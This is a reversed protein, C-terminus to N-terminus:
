IILVSKKPHPTTHLYDVETHNNQTVGGVNNDRECLKCILTDSFYLGEVKVKIRFM